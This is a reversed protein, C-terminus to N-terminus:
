FERTSLAEKQLEKDRAEQRWREGWKWRSRDVALCVLQLETLPEYMAVNPVYM